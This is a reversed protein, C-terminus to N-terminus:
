IINLSELKALIEESLKTNNKIELYAVNWSIPKSEIICVTEERINIPLNTYVRFFKERNTLKQEEPM